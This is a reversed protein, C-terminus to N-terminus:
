VQDNDSNHISLPTTDAFYQVYSGYSFLMGCVMIGCVIKKLFGKKM